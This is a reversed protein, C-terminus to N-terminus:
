KFKARTADIKKPIQKQEDALRKGEAELYTKSKTIRWAFSTIDKRARASSVDQSAADELWTDIRHRIDALILDAKEPSTFVDLATGEIIPSVILDTSDQTRNSM